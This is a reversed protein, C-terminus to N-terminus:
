GTSTVSNLRGEKGSEQTWDAVLCRISTRGPVCHSSGSPFHETSGSDVPEMPASAAEDRKRKLKKM